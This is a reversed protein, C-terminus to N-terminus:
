IKQVTGISRAWDFLYDVMLGGLGMGWYHKLVTMSLEGAHRNRSWRGGSFTLMGAVHDGLDALLFLQNDSQLGARIHQEAAAAPVALEDPSVDAFDTESVAQDLFKVLLPVDCPDAPRLVAHTGNRLAVTRTTVVM